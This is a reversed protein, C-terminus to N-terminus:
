YQVQFTKSYIKFTHKIKFFIYILINKTNKLLKLTNIDFNFFYKLINKFLFYIKFFFVCYLDWGGEGSGAERRSFFQSPKKPQDLGLTVELNHGV